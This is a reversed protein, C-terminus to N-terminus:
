RGVSVLGRLGAHRAFRQGPLREVVSQLELQLLVQLVESPVLGSRLVVEDIHLPEDALAGFVKAEAPSLHFSKAPAAGPQGGARLLHPAVERLVDEASEALAAGQRLLQHPGRSRASVPGPVAFVERGQELAYEATILSGSKETAEVVVTALSLGSIIRNRAPFNEADPRTGLPFESVVAGSKAIQMQLRHHESPYVLDIGCGQVAITRGGVGLAAAHAEADIGRALGSAITMGREALGEAISRTMLRGYESPKRSGVLAVTFADAASLEGRVYLFMPPDHIHRLLAPYGADAWTVLCAGVGGVARLEEEVEKWRDFRRVAKALEGSVGASRLADLRASFVAATSGLARVLALGRTNGIGRIRRLALWGAREREADNM